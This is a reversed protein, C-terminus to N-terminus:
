GEHQRTPNRGGLGLGEKGGSPSQCMSCISQSSSVLHPAPPDHTTTSSCTGWPPACPGVAHPPLYPCESVQWM